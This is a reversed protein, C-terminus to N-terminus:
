GKAQAAPKAKPKTGEPKTAEDVANAEAEAALREAEAKAAAEAADDTPPADPDVRAGEAELFATLQDREENTVPRESEGDVVTVKLLPDALIAALSVIAALGTGLSEPALDVPENTFAIGARRRKPQLARVRVQPLSPATM